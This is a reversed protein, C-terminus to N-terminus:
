PVYEVDDWSHETSNDGFQLVRRDMDLMTVVGGVAGSKLQMRAGIDPIQHRRKHISEFMGGLLDVVARTVHKRTALPTDAFLDPDLWGIACLGDESELRLTGPMPDDNVTLRM